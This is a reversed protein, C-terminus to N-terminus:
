PLSLLLQLSILLSPVYVDHPLHILSFYTCAAGEPANITFICNLPLTKGLYCGLQGGRAKVQYGLGQNAGTVVVHKGALSRSM